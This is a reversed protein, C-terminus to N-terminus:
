QKCLNWTILEVSKHVWNDLLDYNSNLAKVCQVAWSIYLSLLFTLKQYKWVLQLFLSGHWAKGLLSLHQRSEYKEDKEATETLSPRTSILFHFFPTSFNTVAGPFFYCLIVVILLPHILLSAAWHCSWFETVALDGPLSIHTTGVTMNTIFM